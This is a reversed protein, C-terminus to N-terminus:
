YVTTMAIVSTSLVPPPVDVCTNGIVQGFGWQRPNYRLTASSASESVIEWASSISLTVTAQPCQSHATASLALAALTLGEVCCVFVM